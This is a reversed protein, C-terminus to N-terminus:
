FFCVNRFIDALVPRFTIFSSIICLAGRSEHCLGDRTRLWLHLVCTIWRGLWIFSPSGRQLKCAPWLVRSLLARFFIMDFWNNPRFRLLASRCSIQHWDFERGITVQHWAETWANRLSCVTYIHLPVGHILGRCQKDHLKGTCAFPKMSYLHLVRYVLRPWMSM